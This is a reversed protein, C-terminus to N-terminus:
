GSPCALTVRRRDSDEVFELTLRWAEAPNVLGGLRDPWEILCLHTAFYDELGIGEAHTVRYLDAHMVPPNTDFEQILNFTPSRVPGDYGIARLLARVWTTKGAGLPGELLVIDGPRLQAALSQALDLLEPETVLMSETM